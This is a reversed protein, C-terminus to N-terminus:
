SQAPAAERRNPVAPVPPVSSVTQPTPAGERGLAKEREASFYYDISLKGAGGLAYLTLLVLVLTAFELTQQQTFLGAKLHVFLVAGLLNPIQIAAALRTLLGFALMLGGGIHALAVIEALGPSAFPVDAAGMQQALTNAHLIYVIGKVVLAFGLYVRLLDWLLDRNAELWQLTSVRRKMAM